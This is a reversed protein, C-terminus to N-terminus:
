PLSIHIRYFKNSQSANLDTITIQNGNTQPASAATLNSYVGGTVNTASQVAYTRGSAVPTFMLNMQNPQGDVGAIQLVFLSTPDTPNLGAVYKFLNNQGTGDYDCTACSTADTGSGNGFYYKRWWNAVGDGVTDMQYLQAIEAASLARGYIRVDDLNGNFRTFVNGSPKSAINLPDTTLALPGSASQQAALQGDVYIALVSGNYTGAVHHWSGPSPLDTAVTGNTVGFLDFKLSTDCFLRYQNDSLGKQLIRPTQSWTDPPYIWASVTIANVPNLSPSNPVNVFEGGDFLLASGFMGGTWIASAVTGTNNNGSTDYAISGSGEDFTWYALLNTATTGVLTTACAPASDASVGVSNTAAVAYCYTTGMALGTDFYNTASTSAIQNGNRKVIYGTAGSSSTWVLDIQNDSSPTATLNGPPAPVGSVVFLVPDSSIGNAVVVLSYTGVALGAPLTFETTVLNTGTMVGTSNWNHTRAYFVTGVSNTMRVIPYNSNMQADDGYAAGESIGNLQTGVLHYSGDVNQTINSITPKGATLPAGTPQYVYLQSAFHSFLVTGDPLDLMTTYYSPNNETSGTPASVSAFSNSIPDYEYFSTPSPFHNGSTPVPSVACLIRGNAMMAAAADPTGQGNPIDPGAVWTGPSTTGTPTYLATHGTSGLFFAKGNPLLFGAGMESGFSDYVSVPVIGDNVWHNLSPIYRESNTAFPDITLISDDPLKVWSAEDQYCGRFLTGGPSWTNSTPNYIITGGCTSPFVPSVLVNGNPLIKSISDYLVQGPPPALTWTNSLPDYVEATNTGSGYEAGGVFVRGDRLVDSSFYLRTDHMSALSSWTGNVYSGHSDPKLRYWANGGNNEAMVTGDSLLLM